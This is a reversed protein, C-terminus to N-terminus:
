KSKWEEWGGKYVSVRKFGFDNRMYDALIESKDCKKSGCYVIYILNKEFEELAKITNIEDPIHIELFPEGDFYGADEATEIDEVPINIANPILKIEDSIKEDAIETGSRADIFIALNNKNLFKVQEFKLFEGIESYMAIDAMKNHKNNIIFEFVQTSSKVKDIYKQKSEIDLIVRDQGKDPLSSFLEFRDTKHFPYSALGLVLSLTIISFYRYLKQKQIKM